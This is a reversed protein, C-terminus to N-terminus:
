TLTHCYLVADEPPNTYYSKRRGTERFGARQYLAQAAANSERVELFVSTAPAERALTLLANLLRLGLGQRRAAPSVVINELEWESVVRRAVLFGLLSQGNAETIVLVLRESVGGSAQFLQAYQQQSWHAATPCTRDLNMMFSIDDPTAPRITVPNSSQSISSPAQLQSPLIEADTRRIYNAELQEPSVTKGTQLKHWALRSIAEAGPTVIAAVKIGTTRASAALAEDPTAIVSNVAATLLADKPLLQEEVLRAAAGAIEYEGAYVEGRGADLAAWVTGETGAALAVVELLSVAAIPKRLIEALAKIAALGVRLGTFSGPGTVVVFADIETKTFSYKALLAAIQPVLQASFTGGALPVEEILAVENPTSGEGARALAVSGHKGSTDTVLLLM